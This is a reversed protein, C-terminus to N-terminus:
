GGISTLSERFQIQNQFDSYSGESFTVSNGAGGLINNAASSGAAGGISPDVGLRAANNAAIDSIASSAIGAVDGGGSGGVTPMSINGGGGGGGSSKGKKGFRAKKIDGLGKIIPAVVGAAGLAGMIQSMPPAYAMAANKFSGSIAEPAAM